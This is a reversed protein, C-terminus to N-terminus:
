VGMNNLIVMVERIIETAKPHQTEIDDLLINLTDEVDFDVPESEGIRHANAHLKQLLEQQQPSTLEAGFRDHLDSILTQVTNLPIPASSM